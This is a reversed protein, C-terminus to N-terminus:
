EVTVYVRPPHELNGSLNAAPGGVLVTTVHQHIYLRGPGLAIFSVEVM